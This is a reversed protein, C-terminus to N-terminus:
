GALGGAGEAPECVFSHQIHPGPPNLSVVRWGTDAVLARALEETYVAMLLPQSPILDVFGPTGSDPAPPPAVSRATMAETIRAEAEADGADLRQQLVEALKREFRAQPSLRANQEDVFLSYLLRTNAHAHPRLVRLMAVYDDPALHTFVSFLCILDFQEGGLPLSEYDQLPTGGPNYLDNRVDLHHFEFRPDSVNAHLFDIVEAAADVGVYRGIPRNDELLLKVLKTGCGVDLVSTSGLDPVDRVQALLDLLVRASDM